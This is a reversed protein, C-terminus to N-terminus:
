KVKYLRVTPVTSVSLFPKLTEEGFYQKVAAVDLCERSQLRVTARWEDGRLNVGDSLLAHRLENERAKLCVIQARIDALEDAPHRNTKVETGVPM